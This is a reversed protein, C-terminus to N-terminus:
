NRHKKAPSFMKELNAHLLQVGGVVMQRVEEDPGALPTYKMEFKYSCADPGNATIRIDVTFDTVPLPGCDIIRHSMFMDNDDFKDIREVIKAIVGDQEMLSTIIAGEGKGKISGKKVLGEFLGGHEYKGTKISGMMLDWVKRAPAEVRHAIVITPM